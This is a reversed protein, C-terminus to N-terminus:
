PGVKAAVTSLPEALADIQKAFARRDAPTVAGYLAFGPPTPRRYTDLSKQVADFRREITAALAGDGGAVLALKLLEFAKRSGSLNAQFDSLDTHSYRDEAGTIKSHAVEDLLEVAGNALQAPQFVRNGVKRQLTGVDRRLQRAVMAVAAAAVVTELGEQQRQPLERDLAQLAVAAGACLAVAAGVGIWMLRLADARGEHRLFAAVIEVILSAELGERLGIVFTPLL